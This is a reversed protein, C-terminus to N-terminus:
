AYVLFVAIIILIIIDSTWIRMKFVFKKLIRRKLLNVSLYESGFDFSNFSNFEKSLYCNLCLSSCFYHNWLLFQLTKSFYFYEAASLDLSQCFMLYFKFMLFFRNKLVLLFDMSSFLKSWLYCNEFSSNSTM